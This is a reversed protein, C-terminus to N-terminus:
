FYPLPMKQFKEHPTKYIWIKFADTNKKLIKNKKEYNTNRLVSCFFDVM